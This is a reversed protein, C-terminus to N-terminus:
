SRVVQDDLVEQYVSGIICLPCDSGRSRKLSQSSLAMVQDDSANPVTQRASEIRAYVQESMLKHMYAPM